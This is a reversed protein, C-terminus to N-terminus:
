YNAYVKVQNRGSNKAEYVAEDAAKILEEMTNVDEPYSAVGLSMTLRLKEGSELLIGTEEIERRVEEALKSAQTKTYEPLLLVFEEGGFRVAISDSGGTEKFVKAITILAKDGTPHGYNNNVDRLHDMDGFVLSIPFKGQHAKKFVECMKEDFYRCNYLQTKADIYALKSENSQELIKHLFILPILMMLILFPDFKYNQGLLAGSIILIAETVLADKAFTGVKFWPKGEDISLLTTLLLIQIIDFIIASFLLPIILAFITGEFLLVVKDYTLNIALAGLISNVANFDPGLFPELHKERIRTIIMLGQSIIICLCFLPFPLVIAAALEVSTIWGVSIKFGIFEFHGGLRGICLISIWIVFNIWDRLPYSSMNLFTNVIIFIAVVDCGWVFIFTGLPHKKM